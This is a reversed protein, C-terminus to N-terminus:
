TELLGARLCIEDGLSFGFIPSSIIPILTKFLLCINNYIPFILFLIGCPSAMIFVLLLRAIAKRKPQNIPMIYRTTGQLYVNQILVGWFAGFSLGVLGQEIM